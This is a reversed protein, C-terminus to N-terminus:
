GINTSASLGNTVERFSIKKSIMIIKQNEHWARRGLEMKPSLRFYKAWQNLVPNLHAIVPSVMVIMKARSTKLAIFGLYAPCM